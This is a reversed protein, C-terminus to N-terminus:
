GLARHKGMGRPRNQAKQIAGEAVRHLEGLCLLEGAAVERAMADQVVARGVHKYQKADLQGKAQSRSRALALFDLGLITNPLLVSNNPSRLFYRDRPGFQSAGYISALTDQAGGKAQARDLKRQVAKLIARKREARAIGVGRGAHHWGGAAEIVLSSGGGGAGLVLGGATAAVVSRRRPEDDSSDSRTLDVHAEAQTGGGGAHPEHTAVIRGAGVDAPARTWSDLHRRHTRTGVARSDALVNAHAWAVADAQLVARAGDM